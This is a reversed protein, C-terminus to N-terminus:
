PNSVICFGVLDRIGASWEKWSCMGQLGITDPRRGATEYSAKQVLTLRSSLFRASLRWECTAPAHPLCSWAVKVYASKGRATAVEGGLSFAESRQSLCKGSSLLDRDYTASTDKHIRATLRGGRRFM